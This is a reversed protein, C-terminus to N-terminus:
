CNEHIEVELIGTISEFLNASMIKSKTRYYYLLLHFFKLIIQQNRNKFLKLFGYLGNEYDASAGEM